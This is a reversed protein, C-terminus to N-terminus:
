SVLIRRVQWGKERDHELKVLVKDLDMVLTPLNPPYKLTEMDLLWPENNPPVMWDGLKNLHVRSWDDFDLFANEIKDFDIKDENAIIAGVGAAALLFLLPKKM